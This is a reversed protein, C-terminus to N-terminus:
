VAASWDITYYIIGDITVDTVVYDDAELATITESFLNYIVCSTGRENMAATIADQAYTIDAAKAATLAAIATPTM